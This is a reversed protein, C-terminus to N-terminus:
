LVVVKNNKTRILIKSYTGSQGKDFFSIYAIFQWTTLSFLGLFHGIIWIRKLTKADGEPQNKNKVNSKDTPFPDYLCTEM